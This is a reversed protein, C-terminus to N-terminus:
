CSASSTTSLGDVTATVVSQWGARDADGEQTSAYWAGLLGAGYYNSTDVSGTGDTGVPITLVAEQPAGAIGSVQALTVTHNGAPFNTVSVRAYCIEYTPFGFHQTRYIWSVSIARPRPAVPMGGQAAYSVCEGQNRFATGDERLLDQWGGKKCLERSDGPGAAVPAIMAGLTMIAVMFTVLVRSRSTSMPRKREHTSATVHIAFHDVTNTIAPDWDQPGQELM